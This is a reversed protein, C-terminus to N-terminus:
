ALALPVDEAEAARILARDRTALDGDVDIALWLYSADYVTLGHRDALDVAARIGAPGRDAVELGSAEFEELLAVVTALPLRRSRLLANAIEYWLMAPALRLRGEDAWARWAAAVEADAEALMDVVVTADVIVPTRALTFPDAASTM